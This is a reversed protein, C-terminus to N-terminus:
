RQLCMPKLSIYWCSILAAIITAPLLSVMMTMDFLIVELAFVIAAIPAKFIASMAAAAVFGLVAVIEKYNLRFMKAIMSGWAAGTIVTPGELGVSGEFGVTLASTIMSSFTNHKQIIGQEKSIAYLVNPIGDRVPKRLVFKIFILTALIGIAPFGHLTCPWLRNRIHLRTM